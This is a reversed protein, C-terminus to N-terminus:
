FKWITRADPVKDAYGIGAFRQFSLRDSLLFKMEEDSLNYLARLILIKFMQVVDNHPRGKSSFKCLEELKERFLEFSIFKQLEDLGHRVTVIRRFQSLDPMHLYTPLELKPVM